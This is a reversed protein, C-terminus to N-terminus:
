QLDSRKKGCLDCISILKRLGCISASLVMDDAYSLNNMCIDDIYCGLRTSGLEGLLEQGGFMTSKVETGTSTHESPM